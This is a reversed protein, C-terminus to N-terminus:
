QYALTARESCRFSTGTSGGNLSTAGAGGPRQAWGQGTWNNSGDYTMKFISWVPNTHIPSLTTVVLTGTLAGFASSDVPITFANASTPTATWTGNIATWNGTGGTIKVIPTVTAGLNAYDGMGHATATFSVPNANSAGSVTITSIRGQNSKAVCLYILNGGSTYPLKQYGVLPPGITENVQQGEQALLSVCISVFLAVTKM